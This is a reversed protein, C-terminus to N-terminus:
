ATIVHVNFMGRDGGSCGIRILVSLGHKSQACVVCLLWVVAEMSELIQGLLCTQNLGESRAEIVIGLRRVMLTGEQRSFLLCREAGLTAVAAKVALRMVEPSALTSSSKVM